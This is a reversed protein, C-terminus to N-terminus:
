EANDSIYDYMDSADVMAYEMCDDVYQETIAEDDYLAMDGVNQMKISYMLAGAGLIMISFSAAVAYRFWPTKKAQAESAQVTSKMIRRNLEEFYGNPVRYAGKDCYKEIFNKDGM